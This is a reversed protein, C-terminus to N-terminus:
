KPHVGNANTVANMLRLGPQEDFFPIPPHCDSPIAISSILVNFTNALEKATLEESDVPSCSLFDYM